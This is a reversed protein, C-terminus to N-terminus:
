RGLLISGAPASHMQPKKQQWTEPPSAPPLMPWSYPSNGAPALSRRCHRGSGIAPANMAESRRLPGRQQLPEARCALASTHGPIRFGSVDAAPIKRAAIGAGSNADGMFSAAGRRLWRCPASQRRAPRLQGRWCAGRLAGSCGAATRGAPVGASAGPSDQPHRPAAATSGSVRPHRSWGALVGTNVQAPPWRHRM